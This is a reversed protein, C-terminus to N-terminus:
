LNLISLGDAAIVAIPAFLLEMQLIDPGKGQIRTHGEVVFAYRAQGKKQEGDPEANAEGDAARAHAPDQQDWEESVPQAEAHLARDRDRQPAIDPAAENGNKEVRAV